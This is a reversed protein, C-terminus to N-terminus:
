IYPTTKNKETSHLIYICKYAGGGRLYFYIWRIHLMFDSGTLRTAGALGTWSSPVTCVPIPLTSGARFNLHTLYNSSIEGTIKFLTNTCKKLHWFKDLMKFYLFNNDHSKEFFNPNQVFEFKVIEIDTCGSPPYHLCQDSLIWLKFFCVDVVIATSIPISFWFQSWFFKAEGLHKKKGLDM